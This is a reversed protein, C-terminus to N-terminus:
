QFLGSIISRQEEQSLVGYKFFRVVGKGDVLITTAKSELGWTKVALGKYDASMKCKPNHNSSNYEKMMHEEVMALPAYWPKNTVDTIALPCIGKSMLLQNFKANKRSSLKAPYITIIQWNGNPQFNFADPKSDFALTPLIDGQEVAFCLQISFVFSLTILRKILIQPM